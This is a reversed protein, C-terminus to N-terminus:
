ATQHHQVVGSGWAESGECPTLASSEEDHDKLGVTAVTAHVDPQVWRREVGELGSVYLYEVVPSTPEHIWRVLHTARSAPAPWSRIVAPM